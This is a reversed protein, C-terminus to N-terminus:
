KLDTNCFVIDYKEVLPDFHELLCAPYEEMNGIENTMFDDLLPDTYISILIGKEVYPAIDDWFVNPTTGEKEACTNLMTLYDEVYKIMEEDGDPETLYDEATKTYAKREKIETEMRDSTVYADSSVSELYALECFVALKKDSVSPEEPFVSGTIQFLYETNYYYPVGEIECLLMGDEPLVNETGEDKSLSILAGIAVLVACILLVFNKRKM